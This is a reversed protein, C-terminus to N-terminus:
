GRLAMSPGDRRGVSCSRLSPMGLGLSAGFTLPLLGQNSPAKGLSEGYPRFWLHGNGCSHIHVCDVFDANATLVGEGALRIAAGSVGVPKGPSEGCPRFGLHGNGCCHIYVWDLYAGAAGLKFHVANRM